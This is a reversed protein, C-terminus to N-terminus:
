VRPPGQQVRERQAEFGGRWDSMVDLWWTMGADAYAGVSGGSVMDGDPLSEGSLVVELPADSTRHKRVYAVVERVEGISLMEVGTAKIPFVGDWRAARRMPARNPWMGAVWVPIRPSQLPAPLFTTEHVRYQEGEYSFPKGSWLGTLVDLGEDLKRARVREDGDEGFTTYEEPPFGLGVGLTVRGRSLQDLTATERALKWPRRRPLPTIMTGIRVRETRVAVAALAIWPDIKTPGFDPDGKMHDWIFVGDWGATEAEEAITIIKRVDTYSGFNPMTIGFKM